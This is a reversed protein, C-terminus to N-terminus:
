KHSFFTFTHPPVDIIPTHYWTGRLLLIFQFATFLYTSNAYSFEHGSVWSASERLLTTGRQDTV